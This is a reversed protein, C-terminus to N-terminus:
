ASATTRRAYWAAALAAAALALAAAPEPVPAPTFRVALGAGTVTVVPLDALGFNVATVSFNAATATTSGYAAVTVTYTSAGSLDLDGSNVLEIVLVDSAASRNFAGAGVSVRSNM